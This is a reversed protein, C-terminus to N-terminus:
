GVVRATLCFLLFSPSTIPTDPGGSQLVDVPIMFAVCWSTESRNRHLGGGSVQAFGAEFCHTQLAFSRTSRPGSSSTGRTTFEGREAGSRGLPKLFAWSQFTSSPLNFLSQPGQLHTLSFLELSNRPSFKDSRATLLCSIHARQKSDERSPLGGPTLIKPLPKTDGLSPLQAEPNQFLCLQEARRTTKGAVLQIVPTSTLLHGQTLLIRMASVHQTVIPIAPIHGGNHLKRRSTLTALQIFSSAEQNARPSDM